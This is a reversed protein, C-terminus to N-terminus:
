CTSESSQGVDVNLDQQEYYNGSKWSFLGFISLLTANWYPGPRNVVGVDLGLLLKQSCQITDTIVYQRELYHWGKGPSGAYHYKYINM